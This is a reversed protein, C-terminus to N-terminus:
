GDRCRVFRCEGLGNSELDFPTGLLMIIFFEYLPAGLLMFPKRRVGKPFRCPWCLRLIDSDTAWGVAPDSLLDISRALTIVLTLMATPAGLRIFFNLLHISILMQARPRMSSRVGPPSSVTISSISFQPISVIVMKWCPYDSRAQEPAETVKAPLATGGVDVAAVEAQAETIQTGPSDARERRKSSM